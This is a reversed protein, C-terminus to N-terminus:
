LNKELLQGIMGATLKFNAIKENTVGHPAKSDLVLAGWIKGHVEIPIAGISRPPQRKQDLCREVWDIDCFTKRAYNEKTRLASDQRIENLNDVVITNKSAWAREVVGNVKHSLEGSTPALFASSSTQATHGSRLVPMLWGSWPFYGAGYPWHKRSGPRCIKWAFGTRKFLTVRHEDLRDTGFDEYLRDRVGDILYQIKERIWPDGARKALLSYFFLAVIIIYLMLSYDKLSVVIGLIGEPWHSFTPRSFDAESLLGLLVILSGMVGYAYKGSVYLFSKIRIATNGM